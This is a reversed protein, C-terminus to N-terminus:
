EHIRVKESESSVTKGIVAATEGADELAGRVEEADAADVFIMMGIGMNFTSFMERLAINGSKQLFSFVPPIDWSGLTFDAGVGEPLIRPVNEYFGGGTIHM